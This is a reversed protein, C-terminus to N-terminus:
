KCLRTSSYFHEEMQTRFDLSLVTLIIRDIGLESLSHTIIGLGKNDGKKRQIKNYEIRTDYPIQNCPVHKVNPFRTSERFNMM